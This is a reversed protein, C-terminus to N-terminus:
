NSRRPVGGWGEGVEAKHFFAPWKSALSESLTPTLPATEEQCYARTVKSAAKKM